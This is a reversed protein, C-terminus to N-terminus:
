GNNKPIPEAYELVNGESYVIKDGPQLNHNAHAADPPLLHDIKAVMDRADSNPRILKALDWETDGPKVIYTHIQALGGDFSENRLRLNEKVGKITGGIGVALLGLVSAIALSEKIKFETTKTKETM